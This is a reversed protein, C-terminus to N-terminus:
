WLERHSPARNPEDPNVTVPVFKVIPQAAGSGPATLHGVGFGLALAAALAVTLRVLLRTRGIATRDITMTAEM